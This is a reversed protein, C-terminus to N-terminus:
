YNNVELFFLMKLMMLDSYNIDLGELAEVHGHMHYNKLPGGSSRM